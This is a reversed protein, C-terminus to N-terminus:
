DLIMKRLANKIKKDIRDELFVRSSPTKRIQEASEKKLEGIESLFGLSSKRYVGKSFVVRQTAYDSTVVVVKRKEIEDLAIKEILTDATQGKKTFIVEIGLIKNRKETNINSSLADFVVVIEGGSLAKFDALDEILRVRTLELDVDKMKKYIPHYNIVNYGDVITLEEM